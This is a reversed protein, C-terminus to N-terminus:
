KKSLIMYNEENYTILKITNSDMFEALANLGSEEIIVSYKKDSLKDWKLIGSMGESASSAGALSGYLGYTGKNDEEFKMFGNATEMESSTSDYNVGDVCIETISWDGIIPESAIGCGAFCVMIAILVLSIIFRNM